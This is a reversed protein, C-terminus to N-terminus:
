REDINRFDKERPVYSSKLFFSFHHSRSSPYDPLLFKEFLRRSRKLALSPPNGEKVPLSSFKYGVGEDSGFPETGEM